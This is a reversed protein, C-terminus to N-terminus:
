GTIGVRDISKIFGRQLVMYVLLIPLITLIAGAMMAAMTEPSSSVPMYGIAKLNDTIRTLSVALPYNDSLYLSALFYDNWHWVLSFVTNTLIVVGSSPLAIFCFTRVPGAGDIWAAEELEAPLNKFFQMYIYIMLGSRLGTATLSPLYFCWGSDLLNARLDVGTLKNILGFLGLFDLKSFNIVRPIIIMNDPVLITLFLFALLLGRLKFKFRSFGYAVVACMAIELAASLIEYKLTNLFGTGYDLATLAIKYNQIFSTEDLIWIKSSNMFSGKARLSTVIMYLLPYLIVFGIACLLIIRFVAYVGRAANKKLQKGSKKESINKMPLKMKSGDKGKIGLPTGPLAQLAM